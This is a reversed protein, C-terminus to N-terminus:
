YEINNRRSNELSEKQEKLRQLEAERAKRRRKEGPPEFKEHIRYEKIVGADKCTKKFSAFLKKFNAERESYTSGISKNEVRCNVSM